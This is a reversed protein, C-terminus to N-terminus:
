KSDLIMSFTKQNKKEKKEKKEGKNWFLLVSSFFIFHSYNM